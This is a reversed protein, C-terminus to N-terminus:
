ASGIPDAPTWPSERPEYRTGIFPDRDRYFDDVCMRALEREAEVQSSFSDSLARLGGDGGLRSVVAYAAAGQSNFRDLEHVAREVSILADLLHLRAASVAPLREHLTKIAAQIDTAANLDGAVGNSEAATQHTDAVLAEPTGGALAVDVAGITWQLARELDRRKSTSLVTARLNEIERLKATSPGGADAVDDQSM